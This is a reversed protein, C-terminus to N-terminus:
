STLRDNAVEQARALIAADGLKVSVAPAPFPREDGSGPRPDAQRHRCLQGCAARIQDQRRPPALTQLCKGPPKRFVAANTGFDKWGIQSQRISGFVQERESLFLTAEASSSSTTCPEVGKQLPALHSPCALRDIVITM